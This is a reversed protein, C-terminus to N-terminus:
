NSSLKLFCYLQGFTVLVCPPLIYISNPDSRQQHTYEYKYPYEQTVTTFIKSHYFNLLSILAEIAIAMTAGVNQIVIGKM